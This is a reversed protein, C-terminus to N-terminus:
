GRGLEKILEIDTAEIHASKDKSYKQYLGLMELFIDYLEEWKSKDIGLIDSIFFKFKEISIDLGGMGVVTVCRWMMDWQLQIKYPFCTFICKKGNDCYYFKQWRDAAYISLHTCCDCEIEDQLDHKEPLPCVCVKPTYACARFRM